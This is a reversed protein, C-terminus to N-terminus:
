PSTGEKLDWVMSKSKHPSPKLGKITSTRCGKLGVMVLEWSVVTSKGRRRDPM